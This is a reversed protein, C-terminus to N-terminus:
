KQSTLFKTTFVKIDFAMDPNGVVKLMKFLLIVDVNYEIIRDVFSTVEERQTKTFFNFLGRGIWDDLQSKLLKSMRRAQFRDIYLILKLRLGPKMIDKLGLTQHPEQQQEKHKQEPM